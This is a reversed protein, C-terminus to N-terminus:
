IREKVSRCNVIENSSQVYNFDLFIRVLIGPTEPLFMFSITYFIPLIGCIVNLVRLNVFYGVIFVFVVGINLFVQFMSLLSGRIENSSIEGIYIPLVYCYCGISLGIFFRGLM